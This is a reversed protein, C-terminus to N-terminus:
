LAACVRNRGSNKAEYLLNDARSLLADLTDEKSNLVTLGVSITFSLPMRGGSPLVKTDAINTRLREAVELAKEKNTEPLFIAFEEGGIRGLIDIERLTLRCIEALKKLVLDGAKHGHSDNVRKFFDIDIMLISLPIEYRISRSLEHEALEMFHGRNNLGTLYDIHAQRMLEEELRKRKSINTHTGVMRLPNHNADWETVRGISCIWIWYGKASLRRYEMAKQRNTALCEQFAAMVADRDEPHISNMWESFNTHFTKPDYGIMRVYELSVEIEGTKVNLDFWGQNGAILALRLREESELIQKEIKKQETIDRSVTVVSTSEGRSNKILGGCSEIYRIEGNALVFRFEARHGNGSVVTDKFLEKIRDRDDPHIEAFSNTGKLAEIDGFIKSYARNNYKRHGELDLVAFFDDGNEAILRFFEEQEHLTDNAIKSDDRLLAITVGGIASFMCFIWFSSLGIQM